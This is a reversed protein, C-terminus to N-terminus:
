WSMEEMVLASNEGKSQSLIQIEREMADIDM